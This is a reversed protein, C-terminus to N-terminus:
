KTIREYPNNEGVGATVVPYVAFSAVGCMNQRNRALKMYGYIGWGPGWSNKILWYDQKNESGYGVVTVGHDIKATICFSHGYVGGKYFMIAPDTTDISVAVPGVLGVVKYLEKESYKKVKVFSSVKVPSISPSSATHCRGSEKAQYPYDKESQVGGTDKIYQYVSGPEGGDCGHNEYSDGAACDVIQQESLVTLKGSAIANMGELSAIAAFAYCSGCDGQQKVPTVAGEKTWDREKPPTGPIYNATPLDDVAAQNVKTFSMKKLESRAMDAMYNLELVVGHGESNYQEIFAKNKLFLLKRAAREKPNQYSKGHKSAWEEFGDLPLATAVAILVL